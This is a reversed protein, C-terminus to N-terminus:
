ADDGNSFRKRFLIYATAACLFLVGLVLFAIVKGLTNLGSIDLCYVKLVCIVFLILGCIRLAKIDKRIGWVILVAVLIGWWVSLGGHRFYKLSESELLNYYVEFSSYWLFSLGGAIYCTLKFQSFWNNYETCKENETLEFKNKRLLFGAGLLCLTFIGSSLFRNSFLSYNYELYTIMVFFSAVFAIGSLVLLTRYRTREAALVLVFGLISWGATIVADDRWALPIALALSLISACLFAPLLKKGNVQKRNLWIGECLTFASLLVAYGAQLFRESDGGRMLDDILPLGLVLAFVTSLVPLLIETKGSPLGKKRILPIITFVLYNIFVFALCWWNLKIRSSFFFYTVLIAYGMLIFSFLFATIELSRWRRERSIILLGASIVATYGLFFPINGSGDSLMVPTLYAGACGTLALPLLGLKVSVLMTAITTLVMFGFSVEAPLLHYLKYGAFPAMYLTVAGVSLIGVALIHFRKNVMFLGAAFMAIGALFTLCLRVPPSILNNEISYKLFFGIGCLLVIVGARMLWTTAIAYEKSVNEKGKTNGMWFWNCFSDWLASKEPEQQAPHESFSEPIEPEPSFPAPPNEAPVEQVKEEIIDESAQVSAPEAPPMEEIKRQFILDRLLNEIRDLKLKLFFLCVLVILFLIFEM